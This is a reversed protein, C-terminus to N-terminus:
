NNMTFSVLEGSPTVVATATGPVVANFSNRARYQTFVTVDGSGSDAFRTEVHKYSDPDKLRSKIAEEVSHVSGDWPSFLLKVAAQRAAVADAKAQQLKVADAMPKADEMMVRWLPNSPELAALEQYIAVARVPGPKNALEDSLQKISQATQANKAALAQLRGVEPDKLPAFKALLTQAAVPDRVDILRQAKDLLQPKNAMFEAALADRKEQAMRRTAVRAAQEAAEKRSAEINNMTSGFIALAVLAAVVVFIAKRKMSQRDSYARIAKTVGLNTAKEWAMFRTKRETDALPRLRQSLAAYREQLAEHQVQLELRNARKCILAADAHVRACWGARQCQIVSTPQHGFLAQAWAQSRDLLWQIEALAADLQGAQQLFKALRTDQYLDGELVKVRRLAAIAGPMDGVKKLATAQKNLRATEEGGDIV